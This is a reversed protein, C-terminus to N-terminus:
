PLRNTTVKRVGNLGDYVCVLQYKLRRRALDLRPDDTVMSSENMGAMGGYGGMGPAGMGPGNLGGLGGM